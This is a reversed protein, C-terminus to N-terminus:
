EKKEEASEKEKEKDKTLSRLYNVVHWCQNDTLKGKFAPMPARGDQLTWYVFADCDNRKWLEPSRLDAPCFTSTCVQTTGRIARDGHCQKCNQKYIHEGEMISQKTAPIPNTTRLKAASIVTKAKKDKSDKKDKVSQVAFLTAIALVSFAVLVALIQKLSSKLMPPISNFNSSIQFVKELKTKKFFLYFTFVLCLFDRLM